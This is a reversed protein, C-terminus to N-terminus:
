STRARSKKRDMMLVILKNRGSYFQTVKVSFFTVGYTKLSRSMQVYRFKANLESLGHLKKHDQLIRKEVEKKDKQYDPPM